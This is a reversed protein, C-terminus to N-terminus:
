RSQTRNTLRVATGKLIGLSFFLLVLPLGALSTMVETLNRSVVLGILLVSAVLAALVWFLWFPQIIIALVLIALLGYISVLLPFFRTGPKLYYDVFRPGRQYLHQAAGWFSIRPQYYVKLSSSRFIRDGGEVLQRMIKTDENVYKNSTSAPAIDECIQLFAQKNVWLSTTGKPSAEFNHEDIYYDKFDRGWKKGYVRRRLLFLTQSIVNTSNQSVEIVNGLATKKNLKTLARLFNNALQVRDDVFLIQQHKAQKVGIIRAEFRGVNNKLRRITFPIQKSEFKSRAAEASQEIAPQPGDIVLVVEYKVNAPLQDLLGKFTGEITEAGTYASIVISFNLMKTAM